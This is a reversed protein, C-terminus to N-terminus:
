YSSQPPTCTWFYILGLVFEISDSLSPYHENKSTSADRAKLNDTLLHTLSKKEEESKWNRWDPQRTPMALWITKACSWFILWLIFGLCWTILLYTKVSGPFNGIETKKDRQRKLEETGAGEKSLQVTKCFVFRPQICIEQREGRLGGELANDRDGSSSYSWWCSPPWWSFDLCQSTKRDVAVNRVNLAYVLSTRPPAKKWRPPAPRPPAFSLTFRSIWFNSLLACITISIKTTYLSTKIFSFM